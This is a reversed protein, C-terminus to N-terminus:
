SQTILMRGTINNGTNNHWAHNRSTVTGCLVVVSDVLIQQQVKMNNGTTANQVLATIAKDNCERFNSKNMMDETILRVFNGVARV